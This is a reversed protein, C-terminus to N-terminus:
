APNMELLEIDNMWGWYTTIDPTLTEINVRKTSFIFCNQRQYTPVEVAWDMIIDLCQKYTAKRFSRDASIRAKAILEDLESDEIAYHNSDTGGKGVVNSSHYIQHMDPDATAQWAAAWMEATGAELSTWLVNSDSPDNINLTIGVTALADKASTLIGYAPHDGIGGAPVIVEYTLSAGAPAETFKKSSADWTFGAAKLFETATELAAAYKQEMTMGDTFIPQGDVNKSYAIAYGSDSPRPAAWSTNSIPYQIVSAREGYFSDIVTDRYVSFLTAFAKRLNKSADSQKNNGVKVNDSSIGIYGYGLNDIAQYTITSGTLEGEVNGKKIANVTDSSMSPNSIDIVGSIIGAVKDAETTIEQFKIYTIKPAGKYYNENREFKVISNEFGVYKYAGAGMPVTTKARVSSLDGKTFGFMNKAYDFKATDGYYHLPCVSVGLKYIASADYKTMTIKLSYDGTKEIGTISKASEGGTSVGAFYKAADSGLKVGALEYIDAGASETSNIADFDGEYATKMASWYDDLTPFTTVCDFIKGSADKLEGTFEGAENKVWSGFGWMRMGYAVDYGSDPKIAVGWKGGYKELNADSGYNRMVYSVIDAAFDPGAADVAAWFKDAEEKTFPTGSYDTNKVGKEVILKYLISMGTRYDEMGKIPLTYFTSSGTYTPDSLVYMSFIVDNVTLKTGDSFKVNNRLDFEYVVTGDDNITVTCDSLGKYDYDVGNYAITEGTKGKLVINGERDSSLLGIQTMDSVDMDMATKGFFPSFKESFIDYGVVLTDGGTYKKGCSAVVPIFMCLVLTLALLKFLTSKM